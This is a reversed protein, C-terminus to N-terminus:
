TRSGGARGSPAEALRAPAKPPPPFDSELTSCDLTKKDPADDFYKKLLRHFVSEDSSVLTFLTASSKLKMDDPSGFIEHASRDNVSLAAEACVILRPGLIPHALYARAEALSGIAYRQSTPSQGLGAVQPFIYWMWHSRKRGSTIEALARQYDGEQARVFRGLDFPDIKM